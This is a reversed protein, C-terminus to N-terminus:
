SVRMRTLGDSTYQSMVAYPALPGLFSSGPNSRIVCPYVPAIAVSPLTTRPCGTGTLDDDNM